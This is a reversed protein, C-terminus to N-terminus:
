KQFCGYLQVGDKESLGDKCKMQKCTENKIHIGKLCFVVQCEMQPNMM